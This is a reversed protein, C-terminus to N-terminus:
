FLLVAVQVLPFQRHIRTAPHGEHPPYTTRVFRGPLQRPAIACRPPTNYRLLNPHQPCRPSRSWMSLRRRRSFLLAVFVYFLNSVHFRTSLFILGFPYPYQFGLPLSSCCYASYHLRASRWRHPTDPNVSGHDRFTFTCYRRFTATSIPNSEVPERPQCRAKRSWQLGGCNGMSVSIHTVAHLSFIDLLLCRM